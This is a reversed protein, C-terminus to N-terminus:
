AGFEGYGDEEEKKPTMWALMDGFEGLAVM